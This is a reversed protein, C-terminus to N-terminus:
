FPFIRERQEEVSRYKGYVTYVELLGPIYRRNCLAILSSSCVEPPRFVSSFNNICRKRM